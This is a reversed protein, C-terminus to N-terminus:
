RRQVSESSRNWCVYDERSRDRHASFAAKRRSVSTRFTRTDERTEVVASGRSTSPSQQVPRNCISCQRERSLTKTGKNRASNKTWVNPPPPPPPPPPIPHTQLIPRKQLRFDALLRYSPPVDNCRLRALVNDKRVDLSKHIKPSYVKISDRRSRIADRRALTHQLTGRFRNYVDTSSLETRIRRTSFNSRSSNRSSDAGGSERRQTDRNLNSKGIQVFKELVKVRRGSHQNAFVNRNLVNTDNIEIKSSVSPKIDIPVEERESEVDLTVVFPPPPPPPPPLKMTSSNESLLTVVSHREKRAVIESKTVRNSLLEREEELKEEDDEDIEDRSRRANRKKGRFKNSFFTPRIAPLSKSKVSSIKSRIKRLVKVSNKRNKRLETDIEEEDSSKLSSSLLKQKSRENRSRSQESEDFDKLKFFIWVHYRSKEPGIYFENSHATQLLRSMFSLIVQYVSLLALYGALFTRIVEGRSIIKSRCGTTAITLHKPDYNYVTSPSLIDHHVCPKPIDNSCCSFPVDVPTSSEEEQEETVSQEELRPGNETDEPGEISIKLWPVRFWDEYSNDGCCELETQVADLRTKVVIDSGYKEIAEILGDRSKQQFGSLLVLYTANLIAVTFGSLLCALVHFFLFRNVDHPDMTNDIKSRDVPDSRNSELKLYLWCKIGIIYAPSCCLAACIIVATWAHGDGARRSRSTLGYMM